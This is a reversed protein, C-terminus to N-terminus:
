ATAEHMRLREEIHEDTLHLLHNIGHNNYITWDLACLHLSHDSRHEETAERGPRFVMAIEGGLERLAEAENPFRVDTIVIRQVGENILMQLRAAAVTLWVDDGLADRGWETGLSRMAHRPSRGNLAPTRTEKLARDVFHQETLGCVDFMALLGARLPDAFAMAEFGHHSCLRQAVTDKGCGIAGHLGLIYPRPM